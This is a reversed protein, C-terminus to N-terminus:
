VIKKKAKKAAAKQAARTKAATKEEKEDKKRSFAKQLELESLPQPTHGDDQLTHDVDRAKMEQLNYIRTDTSENTKINVLHTM